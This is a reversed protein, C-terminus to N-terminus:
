EHKIKFRYKNISASFLVLFMFFIVNSLSLTSTSFFSVLASISLTAAASRGGSRIMENIVKVYVFSILMMLPVGGWVLTTLFVNHPDNYEESYLGFALPSLTNYFQELSIYGIPFNHINSVVTFVMSSRALNSATAEVLGDGFIFSFGIGFMGAIYALPFILFVFPRKSIRFQAYQLAFIILAVQLARSNLADQVMWGALFIFTYVFFGNRVGLIAPLLAVVIFSRVVGKGELSIGTTLLVGLMSICLLVPTLGKMQIDTLIVFSMALILVKLVMELRFGVQGALPLFSVMLIIALLLFARSRSMVVSM